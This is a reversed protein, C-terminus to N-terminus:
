AKAENEIDRKMYVCVHMSIYKWIRCPIMNDDSYQLQHAVFETDPINTKSWSWM